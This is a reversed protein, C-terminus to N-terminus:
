VPRGLAIAGILDFAEIPRFPQTFRGARMDRYLRM